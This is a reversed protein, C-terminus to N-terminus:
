TEICVQMCLDKQHEGAIASRAAVFQYSMVDLSATENLADGIRFEM